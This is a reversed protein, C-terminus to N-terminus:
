EIGNSGLEQIEVITQDDVVCDIMAFGICGAECERM